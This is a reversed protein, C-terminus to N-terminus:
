IRNEKENISLQPHKKRAWDSGGPHEMNQPFVMAGQKHMSQVLKNGYREYGLAFREGYTM